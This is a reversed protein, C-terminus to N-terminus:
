FHKMLRKFLGSLGSEQSSVLVNQELNGMISNAISEIDKAPQSLSATVSFLARQKVSNSVKADNNIKGLLKLSNPSTVLSQM